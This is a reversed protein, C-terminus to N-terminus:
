SQKSGLTDRVILLHSYSRSNTVHHCVEKILYKGSLKEDYEFQCGAKVINAVITNGAHLNLNQPVTINLIQSFISNYALPGQVDFVSYDINMNLRDTLGQMDQISIYQRTFKLDTADAPPEYTDSGFFATAEFDEYDFMSKADPDLGDSSPKFNYRKAGYAGFMSKINLNDTQVQRYKIIRKQPDQRGFPQKSVYVDDATGGYTYVESIPQDILDKISRFNYGERTQYFFFGASKGNEESSTRPCIDMIVTFPKRSNGQYSFASSSPSGRFEIDSGLDDVLISRINETTNQAPLKRYVRTSESKFHDPSIFNFFVLNKDDQQFVQSAEFVKLSLNLTQNRQNEIIIEVNEGTKLPLASMFSENYKDGDIRSRGTDMMLTKATMVPSFIDEYFYFDGAIGASIDVQREGDASTLLFKNIASRETASAM